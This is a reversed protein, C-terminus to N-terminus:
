KENKDGLCMLDNHNKHLFQLVVLLCMNGEIGDVANRWKTGSYSPRHDWPKSRSRYITVKRLTNLKESCGPKGRVLLSQLASHQMATGGLTQQLYLGLALWNQARVM